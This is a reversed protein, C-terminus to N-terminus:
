VNMFIEIILHVAYEIDCEIFVGIGDIELIKWETKKSIFDDWDEKSVYQRHQTYGKEIMDDFAKKLLIVFQKGYKEDVKYNDIYIVNHIGSLNILNDTYKEDYTFINTM